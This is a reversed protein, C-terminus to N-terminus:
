RKWPVPWNKKKVCDTALIKAGQGALFKIVGTGGGHLGIGMVTVKKNKFDELTM